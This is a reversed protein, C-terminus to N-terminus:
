LARPEFAESLRDGIVRPVHRMSRVIRDAADEAKVQAGTFVFVRACTAYLAPRENDKRRIAADMTLIVWSRRAADPIWVADDVGPAFHEDYVQIRIGAKRLIGPTIRRGFNEDLFFTPEDPPKRSSGASRKRSTRSTGRM